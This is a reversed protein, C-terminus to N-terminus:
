FCEHYMRYKPENYILNASTGRFQYYTFKPMDPYQKRLKGLLKDFVSGISCNTRPRGEIIASYWLPMGNRNTLLRDASLPHKPYKKCKEIEQDLLEKTETWLKYCIKPATPSKNTKSRKRTIRGTAPNYESKRIQGIEAAGFGCNLTLLVCLKLCPNAADLIKHAWELPIGEPTPREVPFMYRNRKGRRQMCVPYIKLIEEDVLWDILLKFVGFLQNAYEAGIEGAIKRDGLWKYYADIHDKTAIREM